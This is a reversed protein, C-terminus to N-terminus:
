GMARVRETADASAVTDGDDCIYKYCLMRRNDLSNVFLRAYYISVKM